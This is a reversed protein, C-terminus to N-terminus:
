ARYGGGGACDDDPAAMCVYCDYVIIM